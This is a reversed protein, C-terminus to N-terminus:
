FGRVVFVLVLVVAVVLMVLFCMVDRMDRPAECFAGASVVILLIAFLIVVISMCLMMDCGGEEMFGIFNRLILVVFISLVMM